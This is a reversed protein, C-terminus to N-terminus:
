AFDQQDLKGESYCLTVLCLMSRDRILLGAEAVEHAVGEYHQLEFFM